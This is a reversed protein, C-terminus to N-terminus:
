RQRRRPIPTHTTSSEYAKLGADGTFIEVTAGYAAYYKAVEVIMADGLSQGTIATDRWIGLTRKLSDNEVLNTQQTFAEWPTKGEIADEIHSIFSNVIKHKDGKAQAIHNGTEIIAAFPLILTTGDEIEQQIKKVVDTHTWRANDPGCTEKGPVKLWVCLISTDLIIVKKNNDM